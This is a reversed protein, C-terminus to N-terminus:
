RRPHKVTFESVVPNEIVWQIQKAVEEPEIVGQEDGTYYKEADTLPIKWNARMNTRVRGISVDVFRYDKTEMQMAQIWWKLGMKATQYTGGCKSQPTHKLTVYILTGTPNARMFKESLLMPAMQNVNMIAVWDPYEADVFQKRGLNNGANNIFVDFGALDIKENISDLDSLDYEPRNFEVVEYGADRLQKATARGIGSTTGTIGVKM